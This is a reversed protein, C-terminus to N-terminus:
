SKEKIPVYEGKHDDLKRGMVVGPNALAAELEQENGTVGAYAKNLRWNTAARCARDAAAFSPVAVILRCQGGGLEPVFSLWGYVKLPKSKTM